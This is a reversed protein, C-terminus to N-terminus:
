SLDAAEAAGATDRRGSPVSSEVENDDAGGPGMLDALTIEQLFNGLKRHLRHVCDAYPCRDVRRCTDEPLIRGRLCESARIPGELDRVLKALRIEEPRRALSYGGHAGRSSSLYGAAALDKMVNMLLGLPLDLRRSIRRASALRGPEAALYALAFLGYGTKKTLGVV